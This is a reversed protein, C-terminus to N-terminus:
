QVDVTSAEEGSEPREDFERGTVEVNETPSLDETLPDMALAESSYMVAHEAFEDWDDDHLIAQLQFPRVCCM